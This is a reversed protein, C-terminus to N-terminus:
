VGSLSSRRLLLGGEGYATREAGERKRCRAVGGGAQLVSTEYAHPHVEKQSMPLVVRKIKRGKRRERLTTPPPPTHSLYEFGGSGLGREGFGRAEPPFSARPGHCGGGKACRKTPAWGVKGSLSSRRLSGGGRAIDGGLWPAHRRRNKFLNFQYIQTLTNVFVLLKQATLDV